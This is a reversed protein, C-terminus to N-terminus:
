TSEDNGAVARFFRRRMRRAYRWSPPLMARELRLTQQWIVPVVEPDRRLLRRIPFFVRPHRRQLGVFQRRAERSARLVLILGLILVPVGIHGPLVAFILGVLMLVLGVAVQAWRVLRRGLAHTALAIAPTNVTFTSM